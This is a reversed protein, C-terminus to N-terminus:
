FPNTWSIPKYRTWEERLKKIKELLTKLVQNEEGPRDAQKENYSTVYAEELNKLNDDMYKVAKDKAKEAQQKMFKNWEDALDKKEWRGWAKGGQQRNWNPMKDEDLEKLRAAVREKEAKLRSNITPDQMYKLATMVDKLNKVARDPESQMYSNMTDDANIAKRGWMGEKATNVGKELLVFEGVHTNDNSSYVPMIHDIPDRTVGDIAFRSAQPVNRWLQNIAQCFSQKTNPDAGPRFSPFGRSGFDDNMKDLFIAVMQLELIHETAYIDGVPSRVTAVAGFGFDNCTDPVKYDYTM